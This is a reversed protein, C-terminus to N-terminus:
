MSFDIPLATNTSTTNPVYYKALVLIHYNRVSYVKLVGCVKLLKTFSSLLDSGIRKKIENCIRWNQECQRQKFTNRMLFFEVTIQVKKVIIFHYLSNNRKISAHLYM